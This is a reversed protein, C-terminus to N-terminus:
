LAHFQIIILSANGHGLHPASHEQLTFVMAPQLHDSQQQSTCKRLLYSCLFTKQVPHAILRDSTSVTSIKVLKVSWQTALM